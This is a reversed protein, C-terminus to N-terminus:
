ATKAEQVESMATEMGVETTLPPMPCETKSEQVESVDTDMGVETTVVMM